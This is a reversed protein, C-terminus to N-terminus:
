TCTSSNLTGVWGSSLYERSLRESVTEHFRIGKNYRTISYLLEETRLAMRRVLKIQWKGKTAVRLKGDAYSM